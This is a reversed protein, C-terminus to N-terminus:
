SKTGSSAEVEVVDSTIYRQKWEPPVMNILVNVKAQGTDHDSKFEGIGKMVQVGLAGQRYPDQDWDLGNEIAIVAKAKLRNKLHAPAEDTIMSVEVAEKTFKSWINRVSEESIDLQLAILKTPTGRAKEVIVAKRIAPPIKGHGINFTDALNYDHSLNSPNDEPYDAGVTLDIGQQHKSKHSKRKRM